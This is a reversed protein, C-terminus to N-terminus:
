KAGGLQLAVLHDVKLYRERDLQALRRAAVFLADLDQPERLMEAVAASHDEVAIAPAKKRRPM